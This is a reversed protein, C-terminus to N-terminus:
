LEHMIGRQKDQPLTVNQNIQGYERNETMSYEMFSVGTIQENEARDDKGTQEPGPLSGAMGLGPHFSMMRPYASM